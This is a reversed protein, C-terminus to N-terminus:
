LAAVKRWAEQSAADLMRWQDVAGPCYWYAWTNVGGRSRLWENDAAFVSIRRAVDADSVPVIGRGYETFGNFTRGKAEVERIFNLVSIDQSAPKIVDAGGKQYTDAFFQDAVPPLFHGGIGRSSGTGGTYQYTGGIMVFAVGPKTAKAIDYEATFEAVFRAGATPPDGDYDGSTGEPEHHYCLQVDEGAPISNLYAATNGGAKYSVILRIGPPIGQRSFTTPLMGSYFLRTVKIPGVETQAQAWSIDKIRAGALLV